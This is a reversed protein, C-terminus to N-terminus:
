SLNLRSEAVKALDKGVAEFELKPNANKFCDYWDPSIGSFGQYAGALMGAICAITDSDGGINAGGLITKAIDGKAAAFLGIAVAVTIQIAGDNGVEEELKIQADEMSNTYLAIEIAKLIKPLTRVGCAIRAEKKGIEEGKEAGYICAKLISYVDSKEMMAEAIGCAVACAASYAHQTGHSPKTMIITTEIAADLNGPNCLGAAAVRMAAGNSTGRGYVKGIKGIEVPDKGAKLENIVYMTTPGANRPYYKPYGESWAILAAAAAEVTLNGNTKVVAKAMEFMQSADDTVEGIFNGLAYINDSGDIFTTIPGGYKEAIEIRSMGESPAGIADGMGAAVLCGLVKNYMKDNM